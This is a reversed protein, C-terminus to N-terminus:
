PEIMQAIVDDEEAEPSSTLTHRPMPRAVAQVAEAKEKLAMKQYREEAGPSVPWVTNEAWYSDLFERWVRDYVAITQDALNAWHFDTQLRERAKTAMERTHAADGLAHRIAWALSAPDNAYSTTGTVGHQVIEKLGGADSSVVPVGAAMGELAVIGFPEYLSPFVAVDACRYLEHLQRGSMFGTFKVSEGLGAWRTFNEFKDRVGGGVILFKTEPEDALVSHVANLLVQIGKERVFRGVYIVIKEDDQAYKRRTALRESESWDFEFKSADVGNFIVDIKDAPTNFLRVAEGKMFESCVILRWAEYTLWYEQEAIYKSIDSFIGGHRGWETAHLTAIIPLKYEYKLNRAADLSLWDHAHFVTPQGGPRWDELMTRVRRDTAQNLLQIEHVFDKPDEDLHVRHVHVGSEEIEEDPAKPTAKTIVHVEIDKKVLEQSLEHVHPSIGGVIRPPYEWSLMMVRM